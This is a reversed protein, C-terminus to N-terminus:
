IFEVEIGGMGFTTNRGIHLVQAAYLWPVFPTLDGEFQIKGMLGSFDMKGNIRSSYREVEKRKLSSDIVVITESDKQLHNIVDTDVWGGYSLALAEIRHAINRMVTPFDITELLLGNRRIRLPSCTRIRVQRVADLSFYPLTVSRAASPYFRNNEWLIRQDVKHRAKIFAFPHRSVGLSLTSGVLAQILDQAIRIAEGFLLVEFRLTEGKHWTTTECIPPVIMYPNVIDQKNKSYSRNNFLYRYADANTHLAQGIAGRLTSGLFEPLVSAEMSVLSVEIPLYQIFFTAQQSM